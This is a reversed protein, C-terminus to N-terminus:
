SLDSPITKAAMIELDSVTIVADRPPGYHQSYLRAQTEAENLSNARTTITWEKKLTQTVVFTYETM